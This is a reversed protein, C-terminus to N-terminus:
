KRLDRLLCDAVLIVIGHDTAGFAARRLLCRAGESCVPVQRQGGRVVIEHNELHQFERFREMM